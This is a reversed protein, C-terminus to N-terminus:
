STKSAGIYNILSQMAMVEVFVNNLNNNIGKAKKSFTDSPSKIMKHYMKELKNQLNEAKVLTEIYSLYLKKLDKNDGLEDFNNFNLNKYTYKKSM